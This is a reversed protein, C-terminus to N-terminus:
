VATRKRVLSLAGYTLGTWALWSGLWMVALFALAGAPGLGQGTHIGEPWIPTVLLLGPIVFVEAFSFPLTGAATLVVGALLAIGFRRGRSM